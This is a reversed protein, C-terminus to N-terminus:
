PGMAELRSGSLLEQEASLADNDAVLILPQHFQVLEPDKVIPAMKVMVRHYLAQEAVQLLSPEAATDSPWQTFSRLLSQLPLDEEVAFNPTLTRNVWYFFQKNEQLDLSALEPVTVIDYFDRVTGDPSLAWIWDVKKLVGAVYTRTPAAVTLTFPDSSQMHQWDYLQEMERASKRLASLIRSDFDDGLNLEEKIDSQFSAITTM